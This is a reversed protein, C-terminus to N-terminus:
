GVREATCRQYRNSALADVSACGPWEIRGHRTLGAQFNGPNRQMDRLAPDISAGDKTVVVVTTVVDVQQGAAGRLM